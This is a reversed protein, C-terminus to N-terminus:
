DVAEERFLELVEERNLAEGKKYFARLAVNAMAENPNPVSASWWAIRQGDLYLAPHNPPNGGALFYLGQRAHPM